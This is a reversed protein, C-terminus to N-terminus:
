YQNVLLSEAEAFSWCPKLKLAESERYERKRNTHRVPEKLSHRVTDKKGAHYM